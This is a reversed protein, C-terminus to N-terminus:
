QPTEVSAPKPTAAAGKPTPGSKKLFTEVVENTMNRGGTLVHQKDLVLSLGQKDAVEKVSEQVQAILPATTQERFTDLTVSYQQTLMQAEAASMGKVKERFEKELEAKKRQISVEAAQFIKLSRVVDQDFYGIPAKSTDIDDGTKIEGKEQFAKKVDETIEDVGYVVIRKDLTVLLKKERSVKIVAAQLRTKLPDLKDNRLKQIKLQAETIQERLSQSVQGPNKPLKARIDDEIKKAEKKFDDEAKKFEPLTLLTEQDIAGVSKMAASKSASGGTSGGSGPGNCGMMPGTALFLGALLLGTGARKALKM